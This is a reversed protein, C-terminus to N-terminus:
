SQMLLDTIAAAAACFLRLGKGHSADPAIMVAPRCVIGGFGPEPPASKM